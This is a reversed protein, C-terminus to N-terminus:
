KKKGNEYEKKCKKSCYVVAITLGHDKPSIIYPNEVIGSYWTPKEGKWVKNIGCNYCSVAKIM